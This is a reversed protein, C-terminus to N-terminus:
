CTLVTFVTKESSVKLWVSYKLEDNTYISFALYLLQGAHVIAMSKRQMNFGMCVGCAVFLVLHAYILNPALPPYRCFYHYSNRDCHIDTNHKFFALFFFIDM